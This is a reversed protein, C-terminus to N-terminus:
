VKGLSQEQPVDAYNEDNSPIRCSMVADQHLMESKGSKRYLNRTALQLVAELM